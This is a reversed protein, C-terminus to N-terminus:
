LCSTECDILVLCFLNGEYFNNIINVM